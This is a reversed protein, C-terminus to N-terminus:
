TQGRYFVLVVSSRGRMDALRVIQGNERELSLDPAM